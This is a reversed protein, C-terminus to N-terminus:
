THPELNLNPTPKWDKGYYRELINLHPADKSIYPKSVTKPLDLLLELQTEPIYFTNPKDKRIQCVYTTTDPRQYTMDSDHSNHLLMSIIRDEKKIM